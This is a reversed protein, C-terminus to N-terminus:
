RCYRPLNEPNVRILQHDKTLKFYRNSTTERVTGECLSSVNHALLKPRLTNEDIVFLRKTQDVYYPYEVEEVNYSLPLYHVKLLNNEMFAVKLQRNSLVLFGYLNSEFDIDVFEVGAIGAYRGDDFFLRKFDDTYFSYTKLHIIFCLLFSIIKM